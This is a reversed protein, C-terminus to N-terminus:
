FDRNRKTHLSHLKETLDLCFIIIWRKTKNKVVDFTRFKQTFFWSDAILRQKKCVYQKYLLM